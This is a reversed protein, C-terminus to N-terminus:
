RGAAASTLMALVGPLAPFAPAVALRPLRVGDLLVERDADALLRAANAAALDVVLGVVAAAEYDLRRIGVGHVEILGALAPAPRVLLRGGRAEVHARDDAVLQAFRLHGSEAAKILDWALRSKGAGSPGRILVAHAGVLVASAHISAAEAAM